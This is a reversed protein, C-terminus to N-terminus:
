DNSDGSEVHEQQLWKKYRKRCEEPEEHCGFSMDGNKCKICDFFDLQWTNEALEEDSMDILRWILWQRNTM